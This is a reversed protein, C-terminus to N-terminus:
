KVEVTDKETNFHVYLFTNTDNSSNVRMSSDDYAANDEAAVTVAKAATFQGEENVTLRWWGTANIAAAVETENENFFGVKSSNEQELTSLDIAM